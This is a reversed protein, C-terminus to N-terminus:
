RHHEALWDDFGPERRLAALEPLARLASGSGQGSKVWADLDAFAQHRDAPLLSGELEARLSLACARAFSFRAPMRTRMTQAEALLQLARPLERQQTAALAAGILAKASQPGDVPAAGAPPLGYTLRENATLPRPALRLAAALPDLPLSRQRGDALLVLLTVADSAFQVASVRERPDQPRWRGVQRMGDFAYIALEEQTLFAFWRGTPDLHLWGYGSTPARVRGAPQLGDITTLRIATDNAFSLLQRGDRTFMADFVFGRHEIAGLVQGTAVSWLTATNRNGDATSVHAGDGDVDVYETGPLHREFVVKGTASEVLVVDDGCLGCVHSGAVNSRARRLPRDFRALVAGDAIRVLRTAKAAALMAVDGRPALGLLSQGGDASTLTRQVSGDGTDRLEIAAGHPGGATECLALNGPPVPLFHRLVGDARLRGLLRREDFVATRWRLVAGNHGAADVWERNSSIQPGYHGHPDGSMQGLLRGTTADWLSLGTVMDRSTVLMLGQPDMSADRFTLDDPNRVECCPQHTALDVVFGRAPIGKAPISDEGVFLTGASSAVAVATCTASSPRWRIMAPGPEVVDVRGKGTFSVLHGADTFELRPRWWRRRESEAPEPADQHLRGLERGSALDLVALWDQDDRVAVRDGTRDIGLDVLPHPGRALVRESGAAAFIRLAGDDCITLLTATDPLFGVQRVAGQHQLRHRITGADLDLLLVLGDRDASCGVRGDDSLALSTLTAGHVDFQHRLRHEPLDWSLVLGTDDGSILRREDRSRRLWRPQGDHRAKVAVERHAGLTAYLAANADEGPAREAGEIALLLALTPSDACLTMAQASLRRGIAEALATRAIGNQWLAACLGLVLALVIAVSSAAVLRHRRVFKRLRYGLGPPGALVPEHRLHRELDGAIDDASPYRRTPDRELARLTIWDLDGRLRRRLAVASVGRTTAISEDAVMVATSPRRPEVERVRQLYGLLGRGDCDHPDHPLHGTLLEYLLVGLSYVDSRVDVDAANLNAQEPSLYGPTGLCRGEATAPASGPGGGDAVLTAKAIGFDIIKPAPEGDVTAVLVNSPKLDRHIVGKQHAHHVGHCVQVFLRLRAAVPLTRQDCWTTLPQGDVFEMAFFPLGDATTGADYIQAIAPHSMRALTARELEFREIVQASNMGIRLIKLAVQRHVPELQEALHVTGFGGEGLLSLIRYRGLPRGAATSALGEAEDHAAVLSRLEAALSPEAGCRASIWDDRQAPDISLAEFFLTKVRQWAGHDISRAAAAPKPDNQM